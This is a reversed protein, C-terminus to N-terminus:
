ELFVEDQLQVRTFDRLVLNLGVDKRRVDVKTLYRVGAGVLDYSLINNGALAIRENNVERDEM